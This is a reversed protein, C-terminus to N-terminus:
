RLLASSPPRGHSVYKTEADGFAAQLFCGDGEELAGTPVDVGVAARVKGGDVVGFDLAHENACLLHGAVDIVTDEVGTEGADVPDDFTTEVHVADGRERIGLLAAAFDTPHEGHRFGASELFSFVEFALDDGGLQNFYGLAVECGLADVDLDFETPAGRFDFRGHQGVGDDFDGFGAARESGVVELDNVGHEFAFCM